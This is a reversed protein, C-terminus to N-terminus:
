CSTINECGKPNVKTVRMRGDAWRRTKHYESNCMCGRLGNVMACNGNESGTRGHSVISEGNESSVKQEVQNNM